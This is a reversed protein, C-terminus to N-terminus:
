SGSFIIAAIPFNGRYTRFTAGLHKYSAQKRISSPLWNPNVFTPNISFDGVVAEISREMRSGYTGIVVKSVKLPYKISVLNKKPYILPTDKELTYPHEMVMSGRQTQLLELESMLGLPHNLFHNRWKEDGFVDLQCILNCVVEAKGSLPSATKVSFCEEEEEERPKFIAQCHIFFSCRRAWLFAPSNLRVKWEEM